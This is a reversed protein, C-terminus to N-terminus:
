NTYSIGFMPVFDQLWGSVKGNNPTIVNKPFPTLYDHFDFRLQVHPSIQFKVGGGVSVLPTLDQQATLVAINGLPQYVVQTGTGQYLKVGAGGEVYPRVRSGSPTAHWIVDYHFQQTHAGFTVTTGGSSLELDGMQYEYRVEGSWKGYINNGVWAGGALGSQLKASASGASSTVTQSTYFGGGVGGGIEWTQAIAVPALAASVVLMTRVINM